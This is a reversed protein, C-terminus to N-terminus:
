FTYGVNLLLEGAKMFHSAQGRGKGQVLCVMYDAFLGKGTFEIVAHRFLEARLGAELATAMGSIHWNNNIRNGFLTVDTRPYVVGMGGKGVLGLNFKKDASECIKYRQVYNILWFNAGDSHEFHFYNPDLVTDKDVAVGFIQGKIHATQWNDVVYKAHDYNLEIGHDHSDSLYYGIRFNFQPITINIVDKLKDFDPRDHATVNYITFDYIGFNNYQNPDGDKNRFHIDTRTYWDRNYGWLLYLKGKKWASFRPSDQAHASLVQLGLILLLFFNRVM